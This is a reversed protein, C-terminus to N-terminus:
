IYMGYESNAAVEAYACLGNAPLEKAPAICELAKRLKCRKQERIDKMCVACESAMAVNILMKLDDTGVIQVDDPRKTISKPRIVVEGNTSLRYLHKLTKEPLTEYVADLVREIRTTALRYDRWGNPIQKLRNELQKQSAILQCDIAALYEIAQIERANPEIILRGKGEM